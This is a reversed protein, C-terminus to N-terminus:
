TAAAHAPHGLRLGLTDFEHRLRRVLPSGPLRRELLALCQEYHALRRDLSAAERKVFRPRLAAPQTSRLKLERIKSIKDAAFVALAEDGGLEARNRLALKRAEYDTVQEDESVALVIAAVAPGFDARLQGPDVATKEIVDHLLGGAIVHDPAGAHYLLEAVELPHAIFGAGDARHQGAHAHEAYALAAATKPLRALPLRETADGTRHGGQMHLSSELAFRAFQSTPVPGGASM